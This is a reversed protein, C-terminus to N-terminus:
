AECILNYLKSIENENTYDCQALADSFRTRIDQNLLLEELGKAVGDSNMPVILGNKGSDIQDVATSFNTLLIRRHIKRRLPIASSLYRM